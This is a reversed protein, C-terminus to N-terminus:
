EVGTLVGVRDLVDKGVDHAHGLANSLVGGVAGLDPTKPATRKAARLEDGLDLLEERTAVDRLDLFFDSEEEEVHHRVVEILVTARAEYREDDPPTMALETLLWKAVRHEEVAELVKDDEDQIHERAWPYVVREEIVTHQALAATFSEVIHRRAQAGSTREFRKFLKEVERHDEKLVAIADRRRTRAAGNKTAGSRARRTTKTTSTTPV